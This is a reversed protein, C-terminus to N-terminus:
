QHVEAENEDDDGDYGNLLDTGHMADPDPAVPDVPSNMEIEDADPVDPLTNFRDLENEDTMEATKQEDEPIM